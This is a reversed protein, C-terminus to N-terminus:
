MSTESSPSIGGNQQTETLFKEVEQSTGREPKVEEVQDEEAADKKVEKDPEPRTGGHEQNEMVIPHSIGKGKTGDALTISELQEPPPTSTKICLFNCTALVVASLVVECGALLFVFM